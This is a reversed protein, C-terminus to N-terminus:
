RDGHPARWRRIAELTLSTSEGLYQEASINSIDKWLVKARPELSIIEQALQRGTAQSRRVAEYVLDHSQERGFERALKMMVAEAVLGDGGIKLNRQIAERNVVLGSVMSSATSLTAAAGCAVQPIATWELGLEGAAREHEAEMARLIIGSASCTIAARAVIGECAIPNSKQPMTSSAGRHNGNGETLEGIETKSLAIVERALRACTQSIVACVFGFEALADRSVHWPVQDYELDLHEALARRIATAQSGLAASTGGAGYLSVKQLRRRLPPLRDRHRSLEALYTAVKAGLTTPVAQQGHTRAAMVTAIHKHALQALQDGLHGVLTMLRDCAQKLQLALASDMIDQTTAGFHLRGDPGEPLLSALQRVLPFIPYGVIRTEQWLFPLDIHEVLCVAKIAKADSATLMGTTVQAEALAAEVDLWGQVTARESFIDEMLDDCYLEELLLFSRGRYESPSTPM